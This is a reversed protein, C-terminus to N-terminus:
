RLLLYFIIQSAFFPYFLKTQIPPSFVFIFLEGLGQTDYLMILLMEKRDFLKVKNSGGGEGM